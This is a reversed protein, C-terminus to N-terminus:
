IGFGKIVLILWGALLCLGGLPTIAGLWKIGTYALLYLSGSFLVIGVLFFTWALRPFVPRGALLLLVVAHILHYFVAKEWVDSMQLAVLHAKLAHAGFAGLAVGLFGVIASTRIAFIIDMPPLNFEFNSILLEFIQIHFAADNDEAAPEDPHARRPEKGIRSPVHRAHGTGWFGGSAQGALREACDRAVDGVGGAKGGRAISLGRIDEDAGDAGATAAFLCVALNVQAAEFVGDGAEFGGAHEEDAAGGNVRLVIAGQDRLLAGGLGSGWGAAYQALGLLYSEIVAALYGAEGAYVARGAGHQQALEQIAGGDDLAIARAMDILDVGIVGGAGQEMEDRAAQWWANEINGVIKGDCL